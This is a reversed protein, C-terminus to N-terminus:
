KDAARYQQLCGLRIVVLHEKLILLFLIFFTFQVTGARQLALLEEVREQVEQALEDVDFVFGELCLQVSLQQFWSQGYGAHPGEVSHVGDVDVALDLCDLQELIYDSM